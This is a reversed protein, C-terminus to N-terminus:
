LNAYYADVKRRLEFINNVVINDDNIKLSRRDQLAKLVSLARDEDVGAFNAIESVTVYFRRMYSDAGFEEKYSDGVSEDYMVLVDCIRSTVDKITVIQLQRNQNYIRKCVAALMEIMLNSNTGLLTRIDEKNFEYCEGDSRAVYTTSRPLTDIIATQGVFHGAGLVDFLKNNGGICKVALVEGERIVFFKDAKEYECALVDGRKFHIIHSEFEPPLSFDENDDNFHLNTTDIWVNKSKGAADILKDIESRYKTNPYLKLIRDIVSICSKYHEANYFANAVSMMGEESSVDDTYGGLRRSMKNYNKILEDCFGRLMELTIDLRKGFTSRFEYVSMQVVTSDVLASASNMTPMKTLSSKAGFIDGENVRTLEDKGNEDKQKLLVVGSQLIYIHTNITDEFFIVTGKKYHVVKPM